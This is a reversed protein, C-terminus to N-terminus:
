TCRPCIHACADGRVECCHLVPLYGRLEAHERLILGPKAGKLVEEGQDHGSARLEKSLADQMMSFATKMSSRIRVELRVDDRSAHYARQWHQETMKSTAPSALDAFVGPLAVGGLYDAAPQSSASEKASLYISHHDMWDAFTSLMPLMKATLQRRTKDSSMMGENWKSAVKTMLKFLAILAFSQVKTRAAMSEESEADAADDISSLSSLFSSEQGFCAEGFRQEPNEAFHIAFFCIAVLRMLHLETVKPTYILLDLDKMLTDLLEEVEDRNLSSPLVTSSLIQHLETVLTTNNANNNSAKSDIALLYDAHMQITGAFLMAHLRVFSTLFFKFRVTQDGHYQRRLAHYSAVNLSYLKALNQLGGSFPNKAM